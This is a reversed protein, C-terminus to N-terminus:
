SLMMAFRTSPSGSQHSSQNEGSGLVHEGAGRGLQHLLVAANVALPLEAVLAAFEGVAGVYPGLHGIEAPEADGEGLVM